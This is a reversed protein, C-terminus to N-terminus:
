FEVEDTYELSSFSKFGADANQIFWVILTKNDITWILAKITKGYDAPTLYRSYDPERETKPFTSSDYVCNQIEVYDTGFTKILSLETLNIFLDERVVDKEYVVKLKNPIDDIVMLKKYKNRLEDFANQTNFVDYKLIMNDNQYFEVLFRGEILAEKIAFLVSITKASEVKRVFSEIGETSGNYIEVSMRKEYFSDYYDQTIVVHDVKKKEGGSCPIMLFCAFILIAIKKM